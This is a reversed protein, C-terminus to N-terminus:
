YREMLAEGDGPHLWGVYGKLAEVNGKLAERDDNLEEGKVKFSEENGNLAEGDGKPEQWGGNLAEGNM